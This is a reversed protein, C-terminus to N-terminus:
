AADGLYCAAQDARDRGHGLLEVAEARAERRAEAPAAGAAVQRHYEARYHDQASRRRLGHTGTVRGGAALVAGRWATRYADHNALVGPSQSLHQRVQAHLDPSIRRLLRQGGKAVLEIQSGDKLADLSVRTTSSISRASTEMQLRAVLHYARPHGTREYHRHDWQRLIEIARQVVEPSPTARKPGPIEGASVLARIKEGYKRSLAAGSSTKGLLAFAKALASRWTHLTKAALGCEIGGDLFAKAHKTDIDDLRQVGFKVHAFELFSKLIREYTVRTRGTFLIPRMYHNQDGFERVGAMKVDHKGIQGEGRMDFWQQQANWLRDHLEAKMQSLSSM